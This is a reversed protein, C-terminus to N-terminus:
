RVGILFSMLYTYLYFMQNWVLYQVNHNRMRISNNESMKKFEIVVVTMDSCCLWLKCNGQNFYINRKEWDPKSLLYIMGRRKRGCTTFTYLSALVGRRFRCRSMMLHTYLTQRSIFIIDFLWFDNCPKQIILLVLSLHNLVYYTNHNLWLLLECMIIPVHVYPM